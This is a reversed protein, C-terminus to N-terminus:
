PCDGYSCAAILGLFPIVPIACLLYLAGAGLRARLPWRSTTLAAAATLGILVILTGTVWPSRMSGPFALACLLFLIPPTVLMIALTRFTHM